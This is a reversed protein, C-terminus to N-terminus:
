IWLPLSLVPVMPCHLWRFDLQYDENCYIVFDQILACLSNKKQLNLPLCRHTAVSLVCCKLSCCLLIAPPRRAQPSSRHFVLGLFTIKYPINENVGASNLVEGQWPLTAATSGWWFCQFIKGAWTCSSISCYLLQMHSCFSTSTPVTEHTNKGNQALNWLFHQLIETQQLLFNDILEDPAKVCHLQQM